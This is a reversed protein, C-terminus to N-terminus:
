ASLVVKNKGTNKAKYLAKDASAILKEKNMGDEPYTALGISLTVPLSFEAVERVREAILAASKKDAKDLVLCFEEGGYRCIVDNTSFRLSDKFIDTVGCLLKDGAQHGQTDNFKKFDDIDVMMVSFKKTIENKLSDIKHNLHLDLFRRNYIGTLGDKVSLQMYHKKRDEGALIYYREIARALVVEVEVRNFPKTIYGYAGIAMARIAEEIYYYSTMVIVSISPYIELAQRTVNVANGDPLTLATLVLAYEEKKLIEAIERSKSAFACKSGFSQVMSAIKERDALNDEVILFKLKEEPM